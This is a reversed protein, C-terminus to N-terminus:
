ARLRAYGAFLATDRQDDAVRGVRTGARQLIRDVVGVVDGGFQRLVAEIDGNAGVHAVLFHQARQGVEAVLHLGAGLRQEEVGTVAHLHAALVIQQWDVGFDAIFCRGAALRDIDILQQVLQGQRTQRNDFSSSFHLGVRRDGGNAESVPRQPCEPVAWPKRRRALASKNCALRRNSMKM